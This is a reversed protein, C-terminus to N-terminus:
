RRGGPGRPTGSSPMIGASPAIWGRDEDVDRAREAVDGIQSDSRPAAIEDRVGVVDPVDQLVVRAVIVLARQVSLSLTDSPFPKSVLSSAYQSRCRRM